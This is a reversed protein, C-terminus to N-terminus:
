KLRKCNRFRDLSRRGDSAALHSGLEVGALDYCVRRIRLLEANSIMILDNVYFCLVAVKKM